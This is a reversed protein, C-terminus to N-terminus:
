RCEGEDDVDGADTARRGARERPMEIYGDGHRAQDLQVRLGEVVTDSASSGLGNRVVPNRPGFDIGKFRQRRSCEFPVQLVTGVRRAGDLNINNKVVSVKMQVGLIREVQELLALDGM